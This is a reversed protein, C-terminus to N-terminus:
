SRRRGGAQLDHRQDLSRRHSAAQHRVGYALSQPPMDRRLFGYPIRRRGRSFMQMSTNQSPRQSNGTRRPVRQYGTAEDVLAIIGVRAFGRMLLECRDAIHLQQKRLEGADRAALVAECLDALLIAPYGHAIGGPASFKIPNNIGVKLDNSVFSNISKSAIFATLRQGSGSMSMNLGTAMGRQVLVRTEDELVYCPIEVDGIVLPHDPSGAITTLPKKSM